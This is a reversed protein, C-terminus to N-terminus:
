ETIAALDASLQQANFGSPTLGDPRLWLADVAAWAEFMYTHLWEVTAVKVGGWTVLIAHVRDYGLLAMAHNGLSGPEGDPGDVLDWVTQTRVSKPLAAGTYVFGCLNVAADVEDMSDHNVKAFAGIKNGALGVSRMLRLVDILQAGQDTTPDKLDYGTLRYLGVVDDDTITLPNGTNASQAQLAHGMSACTCDSLVDNQFM